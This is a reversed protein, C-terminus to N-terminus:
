RRRRRSLRGKVLRVDTSDGALDAVWGAVTRLSPEVAHAPMAAVAARRGAYQCRATIVTIA